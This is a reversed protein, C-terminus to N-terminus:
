AFAFRTKALETKGEKLLERAYCSLGIAGLTDKLYTQAPMNKRSPSSQWYVTAMEM